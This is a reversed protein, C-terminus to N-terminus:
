VQLYKIRKLIFHRALLYFVSIIICFSIFVNLSMLETRFLFIVTINIILQTGAYIASVSVHPLKLENALYQYLHSRHAKFINQRKILRHIITFVSDVGYVTFFLIYELRQTALILSLMFWGLLFAMSVSGVDGAFAKARKRANFFTFILVGISLILILDTSFVFPLETSIYLFSGLCILSYFPTIGNIGDMFNFKNIWGIFIIYYPILYYWSLGLLSLQWFLLTVSFFHFFLRIRGSLTYIDDLFSVISIIILGAIAWPYHFDFLLFWLVAAIPIIIGGGRITAYSHSSRGNPKDIINFRRAVYRYVLYSILLVIFVILYTM